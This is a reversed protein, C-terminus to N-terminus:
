QLLCQHVVERTQLLRIKIKIPTCLSSISRSKHKTTNTCCCLCLDEEMLIFHTDCNYSQDCGLEWAGNEKKKLKQRSFVFSCSFIRIKASPSCRFRIFFM